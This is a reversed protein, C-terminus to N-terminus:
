ISWMIIAVRNFWYIHTANPRDLENALSYWWLAIVFEASIITSPADRDPHSRQSNWLYWSFCGQGFIDCCQRWFYAFWIRNNYRHCLRKVITRRTHFNPSFDLSFKVVCPKRPRQNDLLWRSAVLRAYKSFVQHKPNLSPLGNLYALRNTTYICQIYAKLLTLDLHSTNPPNPTAFIHLWYQLDYSSLYILKTLSFLIISILLYIEQM